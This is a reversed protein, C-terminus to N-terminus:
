MSSTVLGFLTNNKIQQMIQHESLPKRYPFNTKMRERIDTEEKVRKWWLCEWVEVVKFGKGLIYKKQEADYNKREKWGKRIEISIEKEKQCACGHYFCGMAEFVTQCHGCFGDVSFNEIKHQKGTTYISEITCEPRANQFYDMVMNEFRRRRKQLPKFKGLGPLIM